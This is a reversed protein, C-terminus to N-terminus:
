LGGGSPSRISVGIILIIIMAIVIFPLYQMFLSGITVSDQADGVPSDIISGYVNSYIVALVIIVGIMIAGVFIMIPSRMISGASVMVFGIIGILLFPLLTDFFAVGSGTQSIATNIKDADGSPVSGNLGEALPDAIEGWAYNGILLFVTTAFLVVIM